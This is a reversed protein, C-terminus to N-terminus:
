FDLRARVVLGGLGLNTTYNLSGTPTFMFLNNFPSIDRGATTRHYLGFDFWYHHEWGLDITTIYRDCCWTEEWRVGIGLDLIGQMRSVNDKEIPNALQTSAFPVEENIFLYSASYFTRNRGRFKGWILAGELNGYLSFTGCGCWDGFVFQPQLGALPGAGWFKNTFKNRNVITAITGLQVSEIGNAFSKVHFNTHTWAGRLGTYPRLTFCKSVWYKKGFEFDLQNFIVSWKASVRSGVVQTFAPTLPNVTLTTTTIPSAWPNNVGNILGNTALVTDPTVLPASKSGSTHNDIYTWNLNVDWGDCDSNMGVGVRIGANWKSELYHHRVIYGDLIFADNPGQDSQLTYQTRNAFELNSERAYWYLFDVFAYMGWDCQLDYYQPNYCECDICKKPKPVCSPKPCETPCCAPQPCCNDAIEDAAFGCAMTMLSVPILMKSWKKLEIM